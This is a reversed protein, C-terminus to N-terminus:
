QESFLKEFHKKYPKRKKGYFDRYKEPEDTQFSSIRITSKKKQIPDITLEIHKLTDGELVYFPIVYFPANQRRLYIASDKSQPVPSWFITSDKPSAVRYYLSKGDILRYFRISDKYVVLGRNRLGQVLQEETKPSTFNEYFGVENERYTYILGERYPVSTSCLTVFALIGVLLTLCSQVPSNLRVQVPEAANVWPLVSLTILDSYDVVRHVPLSFHHNLFLILPESLPSKWWIFFLASFILISKKHRPSFAFLFVPLVIMGAFDSLKGTLWNHYEYKWYVDNLILILLSGLFVPHLLFSANAKKM